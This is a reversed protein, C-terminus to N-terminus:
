EQNPLLRYGYAPHQYFLVPRGLGSLQKLGIEAVATFVLLFVLWVAALTAKPHREFISAEAANVSM